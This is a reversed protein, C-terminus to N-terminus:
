CASCASGLSDASIYAVSSHVLTSIFFAYLTIKNIQKLFNHLLGAVYVTFGLFFIEIVMDDDFFNRARPKKGVTLHHIGGPSTSTVHFFNLMGLGAVPFGYVM